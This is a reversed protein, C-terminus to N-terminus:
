RRRSSPDLADRLGDGIFNVALVTLLLAVGPVYILHAKDTGVADRADQLMRGWSTSPPQVGLGLFSLTSETVVAAAISLTANVLIPGVTNPLIHRVVIRAHSAGSVRAADIYEREKISLVQGRVVRAVYMWGVSSLVLIITGDNSGFRRIAVALIAITPIVLFLDTVRMLLQDLWRGAYGAVAGVATGLLTSLLAVGLGIRLSIQGAYLLESLEDRGLDDTGLLHEGSPKTPGLLFDQQNRPSPAIWHAGFCAVVILLLVIASAVAMRHRLFRRLVMRWSSPAPLEVMLEVPEIM